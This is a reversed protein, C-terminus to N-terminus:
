IAGLQSVSKRNMADITQLANSCSQFARQVEILTTMEQNMDVNSLEINGQLMTTTNTADSTNGEAIFMGNPAKIMDTEEDPVVLAIKDIEEGLGDMITGDDRVTIPMNEIQIDGSKGQVRGLGPLELYGEADIDFQGNRTLYADGETDEISYYGDGNIAVDLVRGTHKISGSHGLAYIGEVTTITHMADNIQTKSDGEQRVLAQEFSGTVVREARYGPKNINVLNNGITDIERQRTLLGSAITYHGSLM